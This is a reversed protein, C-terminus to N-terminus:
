RRDTRVHGIVTVAVTLAAAIGMAGGLHSHRLVIAGVVAGMLIALIAGIRRNWLASGGGSMWSESALSTLTSTVVVTTMDKVGVKRAVAAQTGMTAATVAAIILQGATNASTDIVFIAITCGVLAASGVALCMSVRSTWGSPQTRLVLGAVFAAASFAGLAIAPGLVPLEDAGALGMGLIVINGTMNGVFVRDLGLYGVSDVVGTVFTLVVMLAM